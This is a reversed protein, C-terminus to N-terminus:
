RGAGAARYVEDSVQELWTVAAGDLAEAIALHSGAESAAAGHWHRVHPPIQVIDGPRAIQLPHGESQVWICGETVYLTQGLPHTHWATHAGAAFSVLVGGIRAPANTQFRPGVLVTGSFYAAAGALRETEAGRIVGIPANVIAEKAM